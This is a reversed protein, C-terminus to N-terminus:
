YEFEKKFRTFSSIIGLFLEAPITPETKSRQQALQILEHITFLAEEVVRSEDQYGTSEMYDDLLEKGRKGLNITIEAM